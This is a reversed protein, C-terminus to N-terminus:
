RGNLESYQLVNRCLFLALVSVPINMIALSGITTIYEDIVTVGLNSLLISLAIGPVSMIVLIVFYFLILLARTQIIGLVREAVVNGVTFLISFTIRAVICIVTEATTLGLIFKVPVFLLIAQVCWGSLGERLCQILKNLPPEPVMYIYPKSLEKNFRGLASSFLQMYVSFIFVATVGHERMFVSFVISVLVFILSPMDLILIKSRRNEILHKYYFANAGEGKGIGTKGVKVNRPAADTIIGEKKATIASQSIEATKLVDEYYDRKSLSIILVIAALYVVSIVAGFILAKIEGSLIGGVAAAMWGSVPFARMAYSNATKVAASLHDESSFVNILLGAAFGAVILYFVVKAIQRHKENGSTFSYITMATLQGLFITLSYGIFIAILAGFTVGYIDHMWSYQFLLFIGILMSSTMQRFLGYFLVRQQRIPAPFMLNVDQMGFFTGGNGFGNQATTVFIVSFLVLAGASLESIDRVSKGPADSAKGGFITIGLLGVFILAYILRSPHKFLSRIENKLRTLLLYSLAGKM